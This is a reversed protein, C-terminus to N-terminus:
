LGTTWHPRGTEKRENAEARAQPPLGDVRMAPESTGDSATRVSTVAVM